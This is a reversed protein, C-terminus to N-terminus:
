VGEPHLTIQQEPHLPHVRVREELVHLLPHELESVVADIELDGDSATVNGTFRM